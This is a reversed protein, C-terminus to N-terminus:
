KMRGFYTKLGEYSKQLHEPMAKVDGLVPMFNTDGVWRPVIHLHLHEKIGAGAATGLNMGLNFGEAKYTEKLAEVAHTGLEMLESYEEQSLDKLENTHKFPIVMLHGNNYPFKNLIVFNKKARYLILNKQDANEKILGCFICGSDKEKEQKIFEMRWPAWLQKIM